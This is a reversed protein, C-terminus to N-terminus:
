GQGLHSSTNAMNQTVRVCNGGYDTVYVNGDVPNLAIGQPDQLENQGFCRIVHGNEDSVVVQNNSDDLSYYTNDSSIVIDCPRFPHNFQTFVLSKKFKGDKDTVQLRNNATDATVIDKDKNIAVGFPHQFQGEANGKSGITKVLGRIVPSEQPPHNGITVTVEHVDDVQRCLTVTYTGDENDSVSLEELAGCPKRVKAKVQQKPIVQKGSSDRTTILLDASNGKVQQNPINEDTCTSTGGDSRLSGLMGIENLKENAEFLDVNQVCPKIFVGLLQQIRPLANARTSFLHASNGHHMLTELYTCATKINAHKLELDDIDTAAKTIKETYIHNLEDILRQEERKTKKIIEEAKMRVMREERSYRETLDFHIQKALTKNKEAEQEKVKLKDVMAKLETLYEDAADKLDRHVHESRLRVHKQREFNQYSEECQAEHVVSDLTAGKLRGAENIKRQLSDDGVAPTKGSEWVRKQVTGQQVVVESDVFSEM